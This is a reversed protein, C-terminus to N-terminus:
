SINMVIVGAIIFFIGIWRNIMIREGFLYKSSIAILVYTCALSPYAVMLDVNLLAILWFFAAIGYLAICILISPKFLKRIQLLPTGRDDSKVKQSYSKLLLLSISNLIISIILAFYFVM